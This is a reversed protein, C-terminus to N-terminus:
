NAPRAIGPPPAPAELMKLQGSVAPQQPNIALSKKLSELAGEKNGLQMFIQALFNYLDANDPALVTARRLALIADPLRAARYLLRGYAQHFAETDELTKTYREYDQLAQRLMVRTEIDYPAAKSGLEDLITSAEVMQGNRTQIAAKGLQGPVHTPDTSVALQFAEEALDYLKRDWYFNGLLSQTIGSPVDGELTVAKRLAAHSREQGAEGMKGTNEALRQYLAVSEGHQELAAELVEAALDFNGLAEHVQVLELQLAQEAQEQIGAAEYAAQADLLYQRADAEAKAYSQQQGQKQMEGMKPLLEQYKTLAARGAEVGGQAHAVGMVLCLSMAIFKRIRRIVM